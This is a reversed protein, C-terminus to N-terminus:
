VNKKVVECRVGKEELYKLAKSIESKEGTLQIILNGIITNKLNDVTGLVINAEIDFRKLMQSIFPQKAANGVFSLHILEKNVTESGVVLDQPIEHHVTQVFNQTMEHKPHAFVDIITGNEIVQGNEMVAVKNCIEKIVEMEHTIIVITLGLKENIDKLLTLISKTTKPDLASTAEDCLLVSPNNALARAIGVRQKQGGSLQSPYADAKNELGVLALLEKVKIQIKEKSVGSIELPYAINDAVTRSSLLNFHQFIMGIKKREERLQVSNLGVLNVGDVVVRGSSVEELRNICRVLTSKGAGSLGIIGFIDKKEIHLNIDKLAHIKDKGNSYYKNVGEILILSEM